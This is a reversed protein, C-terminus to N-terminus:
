HCSMFHRPEEAPDGGDGTPNCTGCTNGCCFLFTMPTGCPPPWTGAFSDRNPGSPGCSGTGDRRMCVESSPTLTCSSSGCADVRLGPHADEMADCDYDWSPPDGTGCTWGDFNAPRPPSGDYTPTPTGVVCYPQQFYETQGPFVNAADPDTADDFCDNKPLGGTCPAGVGIFGDGDLDEDTGGDGSCDNDIGDCIEVTVGPNITMEDDNCDDGCEGPRACCARDAYGDM